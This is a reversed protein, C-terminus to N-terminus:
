PVIIYGREFTGHDQFYRLLMRQRSGHRGRDGGGGGVAAGERGTDREREDGRDDPEREEGRARRRRQVAGIAREPAERGDDQREDVRGVREADERGQDERAPDGVLDAPPGDQQGRERREHARGDDEHDGVGHDPEEDGAADLAERGAERQARGAGREEVEMGAAVWRADAQRVADHAGAPHAEAHEDRRREDLQERRRADEGVDRQEDEEGDREDADRPHGLGDAAARARPQRRLARADRRDHAAREGEGGERTMEDHDTPPRNRESPGCSEAVRNWVFSWRTAPRLTKASAPEPAAACSRNPRVAGHSPAAAPETASAVPRSSM